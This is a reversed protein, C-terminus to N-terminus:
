DEPLRLRAVVRARGIAQDPSVELIVAEGTRLDAQQPPAGQTLVWLLQGLQPNHGVVMLARDACEGAHDAILDLAQSASRGVELRRETHLPSRTHEHIITATAIAREHGSSLIMAPPEAAFHEALWRAQREGRQKLRRDEERGSPADAEAKGHRVIIVRVRCHLGREHTWIPRSHAQQPTTSGASRRERSTPSVM